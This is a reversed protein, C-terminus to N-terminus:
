IFTELELIRQELEFILRTNLELCQNIRTRVSVEECCPSDEECCPSDEICGAKRNLEWLRQKASALRENLIDMSKVMREMFTTPDKEKIENM